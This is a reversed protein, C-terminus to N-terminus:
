RRYHTGGVCVCLALARAAPPPPESTTAHHNHTPPDIMDIAHTRERASAAGMRTASGDMDPPENKNTELAHPTLPQAIRSGAFAGRVCECFPRLRLCLPGAKTHRHAQPQTLHSISNTIDLIGSSREMLCRCHAMKLIQAYTLSPSGACFVLLDVWPHDRLPALRGREGNGTQRSRVRSFAPRSFAPDGLSLSSFAPGGVIVSCSPASFQVGRSRRILPSKRPGAPPQCLVFRFSSGTFRLVV